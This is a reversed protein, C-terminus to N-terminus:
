GIVVGYGYTWSSAAAAKIELALASYNFLVGGGGRLDVWDVSTSTSGTRVQSQMGGWTTNELDYLETWGSGPTTGLVDKDMAVPAFVESTTAPAANLTLSIPNATTSNNPQASTSGTAGTPTGTDYGTYAVVSVAYMGADRAGADLTLTMSAGTTVPATWIITSTPFATPSVTLSLANTYTWGGGSITLTGIPNTTTGANEIYAEGVVLLSNNPPTFSGTTYAGTGFTGTTGSIAGLLDTRSLAM